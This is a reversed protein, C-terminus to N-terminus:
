YSYKVMYNSGDGIYKKVAADSNNSALTPDMLSWNKGDFEIINNVWGLEKLYVSIWAHYSDGSYGVELKTPIMQSRLLAAMLTAYDFCIGKGSSLTNDIVPLYDSQVNKALQDDYSIHEIVYNYIQEVYDLDNSTKESIERGLKVANDEETFWVYQNPYLFPKFEDSLSVDIPQSFSIAYMDDQVNELVNLTYTGNGDSLPFTEYNGIRLNYSYTTEKPTIIQLKVKSASGTYCVQVYGESTHSADISTTENELVVTGSAQPVLCETVTTRREDTHNKSTKKPSESCGICFFATIICILMRVLSTKKYM